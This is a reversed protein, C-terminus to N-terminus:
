DCCAVDIKVEDWTGNLDPVTPLMGCGSYGYEGPCTMPIVAGLETPLDMGLVTPSSWTLELVYFSGAVCAPISPSSSLCVTATRTVMVTPADSSYFDVSLSACCDTGPDTWVATSIDATITAVTGQGLTGKIAGLDFSVVGGCESYCEDCAICVAPCDSGDGLYTGAPAGSPPDICDSETMGPVYVGDYTLCCGTLVDTCCIYQVDVGGPDTKCVYITNYAFHLYDGVRSVDYVNQVAVLDATATEDTTESDCGDGDGFVLWPKTEKYNLDCGDFELLEGTEGTKKGVIELPTATGYLASRTIAVNYKQSNPDWFAWGKEDLKLCSQDLGPLTQLHDNVSDEFYTLPDEGELFEGSDYQWGASGLWIVRIWRAVPEHVDAIQWRFLDRGSAPIYPTADNCGDELRQMRPAADITVESGQIASFRGDNEAQIKYIYPITEDTNLLIGPDYDVNPYRSLVSIANNFYLTVPTENLEGTPQSHTGTNRYVYVHMKNVTQSCNEVEWRKVIPITGGACTAYPVFTGGLTSCEGPTVGDQCVSGVTCTGIVRETEAAFGLSGGCPFMSDPPISVQAIGIAQAFQKQTDTVTVTDGANVVTSGYTNLVIASAEGTDNFGISLRFRIRPSDDAGGGEQCFEIAHFEGDGFVCYGVTGTALEGCNLFHVEVSPAFEEDRLTLLKCLATPSGSYNDLLEFKWVQQVDGLSCVSYDSSVITSIKYGSTSRKMYTTDVPDPFCYSGQPQTTEERFRVLVGGNYVCPGIEDSKIPQRPVLLMHCTTPWTPLELDVIDGDGIDFPASPDGYFVGLGRVEGLVVDNIAKGFVIDQNLTGVSTGVGGQNEPLKDIVRNWRNASLTDGPTVKLNDNSGSTGM